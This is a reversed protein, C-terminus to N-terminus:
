AAAGDLVLNPEIVRMTRWRGQLFRGLYVLGLAVVWGTLVTWGWVLGGGCHVIGIWAAAVATPSLVLNTALVFRTDGAGKIASVFVLNLADFLCYAAVFRLLVVTLEGLEAFREPPMGAAHGWLFLGPAGVYLVAFVGMYVMAIALATWTARAALHPRNRGLQQGVMTAVAIGLGLMPVFAVSNVNFALTTAALATEGLRGVILLFLTFGAIEALMQLGNPGGYLLLRTLLARDPRWAGDLCYIERYAKRHMLYWFILTGCWQSIATAWAAGAIGLAPFGFHGFIWAYDLVINLLSTTCTVLMVVLTEGRGTFFSSFAATMIAGGAGVTLIQYYISELGVMEPGHGAHTFVVPALPITALFVPMAALGVWVGQWVVAGIRQRHGAGEYQAVFTNVYSAIGLPFCLLSFHLMGAPLTAAMAQPSHWCLFMRDAFNMVTWSATSVILPLALRLVDRPGCRRRWWRALSGAGM